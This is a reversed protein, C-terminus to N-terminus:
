KAQKQEEAKAEAEAKNIKKNQEAEAQKQKNEEAKKEARITQLEEFMAKVMAKLPEYEINDLDVSKALTPEETVIDCYRKRYKAIGAELAKKKNEDAKAELHEVLDGYGALNMAIVAELAKRYSNVSLGQIVALEYTNTGKWVEVFQKDEAKAKARAKAREQKCEETFVQANRTIAISTNAIDSVFQKGAETSTDIGLEHYLPSLAIADSKGAQRAKLSQYVCLTYDNWKFDPNDSLANFEAQKFPVFKSADTAMTDAKEVFALALKHAEFNMREM